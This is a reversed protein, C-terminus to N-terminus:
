CPGAHELLLRLTKASPERGPRVKPKSIWVSDRRSPKAYTLAQLPPALEADNAKPRMGTPANM